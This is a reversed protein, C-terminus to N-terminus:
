RIHLFVNSYQHQCTVLLSSWTTLNVQPQNLVPTISDSVYVVIGTHCNVVFLFGDAAQFSLFHRTLISPLSVNITACVVVGIFQIDQLISMYVLCQLSSLHHSTDIFESPQFVKTGRLGIKNEQGSWAEPPSPKHLM